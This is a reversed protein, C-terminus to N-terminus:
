PPVTTSFPAPEITCDAAVAGAIQSRPLGPMATAPMPSTSVPTM